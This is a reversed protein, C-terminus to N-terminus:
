NRGLKVAVGPPDPSFARKMSAAFFIRLAKFTVTGKEDGIAVIKNASIKFEQPNLVSM